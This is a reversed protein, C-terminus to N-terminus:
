FKFNYTLFPIQHGFISLKYGNLKGNESVYYVSFPNKRGTANYVGITWSSHALKKVKHNGEINFALDLRFFDPIRYKNRDSYYVRESGAYDYKAIPLTIPRGTSYTGNLSFSVRHSFKYNSVLTANHPKDFNSNYYEGNNIAEDPNLTRQQVKSYTYSVWGNLKGTSKKVLFEAGYARGETSVVDTEINSNMLLKAGSKYDLYNNMRKYYVEVSTEIKNNNLNQYFGLSIQDGHQPKIHADSLKWSDTPTIATTNSLMHIFQRMSNYGIKVSSFNNFAYRAGFRFEPGAYTKINEGSTYSITESITSESKPLNDAYYRVNKPGLYSYVAMRVGADITLKSNITYSDSLFLASELAQETELTNSSILSLPHSPNIQGPKIKYLTSQLGYNLKHNNNLQHNVDMKVFSQGISYQMDYANAPNANDAVNFNYADHGVTLISSINNNFIRKWKLNGNANQYSYMIGNQFSFKDKSTYATLYLADKETLQHNLLVNLDYFNANSNKYNDDPIVKLLWDSYTSRAGVFFQTKEGIPGEFSLKSTLPGIGGSGSFKNKNGEKTTVDLVSSLRGGFRAPISSKYLEVQSVADANFASFLGFFHSPNYITADGFLVLNQDTAGGRVNFGSAAEGVTQVGPLTLIVSIVDTEGFVTPTQKITKISLKEVGLQVRKVQNGREGAVVVENLAFIQDSLDVDLKGSSYIAIQRKTEKFGVSSFNITAREEPINLSYYGYQDTQTANTKGFISVTAGSIPSGDAINRVYGNLAKENKSPAKKNGIEFLKNEISIDIEAEKVFDELKPLVTSQTKQVNEFSTFIPVERTIYIKNKRFAHRFNLPLLVADLVSTLSKNQATYNIKISDIGATEYYFTYPTQKELNQIFEEFTANTVQLSVPTNQAKLLIPFLIFFCFKLYFYKM